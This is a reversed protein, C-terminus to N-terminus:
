RRQRLRRLGGALCPSPPCLVPPHAVRPARSPHVGWGWPHMCGGAPGKPCAPLCRRIPCLGKRVERQAAVGGAEAVEEDSLQEWWNRGIGAPLPGGAGVVAGSPATTVAGSPAYTVPGGGSGAAYPYSAPQLQEAGCAHFTAWVAAMEHDRLYQMTSENGM